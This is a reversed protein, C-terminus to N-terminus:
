PPSRILCSGWRGGTPSNDRRRHRRRPAASRLLPAASSGSPGGFEDPQLEVAGIDIFGGVIRPFGRQDTDPADTNDGANIVLSGPLPRMTQTPGGYDGLPELQPDIPFDATGVLDTDAFGSGGTGDGILNHGQSSFAGSVDSSTPATNGALVVNKTTVPGFSNYIGGGGYVTASNGSLTSDTLTLTGYNYIGGGDYVASNGSLTSSTVTLTGRNHIFTILHTPGGSFAPFPVASAQPRVTSAVPRQAGL